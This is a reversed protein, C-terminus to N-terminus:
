KAMMNKEGKIEVQAKIFKINPSIICRIMYKGLWINPAFYEKRRNFRIDFFYKRGFSFVGYSSFASQKIIM